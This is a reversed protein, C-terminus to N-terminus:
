ARVGLFLTLCMLGFGLVSLILATWENQRRKGIGVGLTFGGIMLCISHLLFSM